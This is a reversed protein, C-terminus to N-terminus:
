QVLGRNMIVTKSQVIPVKANREIYNELYDGIMGSQFNKYLSEVSAPTFDNKKYLKRTNNCKFDVPEGCRLQQFNEAINIYTKFVNILFRNSLQHFSDTALIYPRIQHIIKGTDVGEDLYMYTAGCFEPENNVFPFYNTGSGRYYPSLGLHVNLIKGCYKKILEGKIISTGYVLVLDIQLEELINLCDQSSFWQRPVTRSMGHSIFSDLYLGFVDKEAQDRASLHQIELNADPRCEVLDKLPNGSEYFTAVISLNISNQAMAAFAKHRLSSATFVVAKLPM